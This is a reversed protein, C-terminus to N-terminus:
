GAAGSWCGEGAGLAAVVDGRPTQHQRSSPGAQPDAHRRHRRRAPTREGGPPRGGLTSTITSTITITVTSTVTLPQDRARRQRHRSGHGPIDGAPRQGGPQYRYEATEAQECEACPHQREVAVPDPPFLADEGPSCTLRTFPHGFPPLM